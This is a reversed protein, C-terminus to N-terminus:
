LQMGSFFFLDPAESGFYSVLAQICLNEFCLFLFSICASWSQVSSQGGGRKGDTSCSSFRGDWGGLACHVLEQSATLLTIFGVSCEVLFGNWVYGICLFCHACSLAYLRAMFFFVWSLCSSMYQWGNWGHFRFLVVSNWFSTCGQVCM